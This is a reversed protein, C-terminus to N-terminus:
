NWNRELYNKDLEDLFPSHLENNSILYLLRKARTIGVYFLRREETLDQTERYPLTGQDLYVFFVVEFELGKAQHVSSLILNNRTKILKKDEFAIIIWQLFTNALEGLNSYEKKRKKEWNEAINLFQQVNKERESANIRTKLHEWYNFDNNLHQKLYELRAEPPVWITFFSKEEAIIKRPLSPNVQIEKELKSEYKKNVALLFFTSLAIDKYSNGVEVQGRQESIIKWLKNKLLNLNTPEKKM